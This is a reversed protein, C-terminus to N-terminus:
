ESQSLVQEDSLASWSRAIGDALSVPRFDILSRLSRVDLVISRVDFKRDPRYVVGISRGLVDEILRILELLSHGEDSGVNLVRPGDTRYMLEAVVDGVDDVYIYDRVISGDGYLTVSHEKLCDDLFAAVVGQGRGALQGPGYVNALRLVRTPIEYLEAYMSAYKEGALKLVGYSTIPETPAREPVPTSTTNGYVTGGSSLFTLGVGPRQRLEELLAILPRLAHAADEMPHVNSESPLLSGVGYVVRDVDVLARELDPRIAADGQLLKAGRLLPVRQPLPTSRSLVSVASGRDLLARVVRSGIFGTGGLVLIRKRHLNRKM